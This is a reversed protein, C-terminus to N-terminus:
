WPFLDFTFGISVKEERGIFPLRRGEDYAFELDPHYPKRHEKELLDRLLLRVRVAHFEEFRENLTSPWYSELAYSIQFGYLVTWTTRVIMFPTTSEIGGKGWVEEDSSLYWAYGFGLDVGKFVSVCYRNVSDFLNDLRVTAGITISHSYIASDGREAHLLSREHRYSGALKIGLDKSWTSKSIEIGASRQSAYLEGAEMGDFVTERQEFSPEVGWGSFDFFPSIVLNSQSRDSKLEYEYGFRNLRYVDGSKAFARAVYRTFFRKCPCGNKGPTYYFPDCMVDTELTDSPGTEFRVRYCTGGKLRGSSLIVIGKTREWEIAEIKSPKFTGGGTEVIEFRSARAPPLEGLPGELTIEIWYHGRDFFLVGRAAIEESRASSSLLMFISLVPILRIKSM